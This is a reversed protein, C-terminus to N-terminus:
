AGSAHQGMSQTTTNNCCAARTRIGVDQNNEIQDMWRLGYPKHLASSSIKLRGLLSDNVQRLKSKKEYRECQIMYLQPYICCHDIEPPRLM